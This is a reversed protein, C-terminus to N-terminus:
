VSIFNKKKVIFASFNNVQLAPIIGAFVQM